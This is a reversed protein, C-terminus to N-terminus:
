LLGEYAGSLILRAIEAHFAEGHGIIGAAHVLEHLMAIKVHDSLHHLRSNIRIGPRVEVDATSIAKARDADIFIGASERPMDCFECLFEGSLPPSSKNFWKANLDNYLAPLRKDWNPVIVPLNGIWDFIM